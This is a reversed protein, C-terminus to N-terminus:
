APEATNFVLSYEEVARISSGTAAVADARIAAAASRSAALAASDEWQTENISRGTSRDIFLLLAVFGPTETLWPLATDEYGAVVEDSRSPDTDMRTLRVGAGPQPRKVRTFSAVVFREVSVTGGSLRAAEDRAPAVTKEHERMAHHSVWFSEVVAVGIETNTSVSMGQSGPLEEVLPRVKDELYRIAEGLRVPDATLLSVQVHQM